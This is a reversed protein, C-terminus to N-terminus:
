KKGYKKWIENGGFYCIVEAYAILMGEQRDIRRRITEREDIGSVNEMDKYLENLKRLGASLQESVEQVIEYTEM